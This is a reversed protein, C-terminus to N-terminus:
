PNPNSVTVVYGFKAECDQVFPACTQIGCYDTTTHNDSTGTSSGTASEAPGGTAGTSSQSPSNGGSKSIARDDTDERNFTITIPGSRKKNGVLDKINHYNNSEKKFKDVQVKTGNMHTIKLGKFNVHEDVPESSLEM